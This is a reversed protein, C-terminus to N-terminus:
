IVVYYFHVELLHRVLFDHFHKYRWTLLSGNALHMCAELSWEFRSWHCLHANWTRYNHEWIIYYTDFYYDDMQEKMWSTFSSGGGFDLGFLSGLFCPSKLHSLSTEDIGGHIHIDDLFLLPHLQWSYNEEIM